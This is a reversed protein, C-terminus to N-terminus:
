SHKSSVWTIKFQVLYESNLVLDSTSWGDYAHGCLPYGLKHFHCLHLWELSLSWPFLFLSEYTQILSPFPLDWCIHRLSVYCYEFEEHSFCSSPRGKFDYGFM